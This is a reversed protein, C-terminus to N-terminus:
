VFLNQLVPLTKMEDMGPNHLRFYEIMKVLLKGRVKKSRLMEVSDSSVPNILEAFARAEDKDLYHPHGPVHKYFMGEAMDFYPTAESFNGLPFFGLLRSYEAMFHLHFTAINNSTEDLQNIQNYFFAFLEPAQEEGSLTKMILENIFLALTSKHIRYPISQFPKHLKYEKVKQLNASPRHYVEMDLLALHQLINAHNQRKKSKAGKLLYSQLGFAETYVKIILSSESYNIKHLFIGRTSHLM